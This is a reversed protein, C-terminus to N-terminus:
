RNVKYNIRNFLKVVSVGGLCVVSFLFILRSIVRFLAGGRRRFRIFDFYVPTNSSPEHFTENTFKVSYIPM